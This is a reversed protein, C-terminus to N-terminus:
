QCRAPPFSLATNIALCEVHTWARVPLEPEFSRFERIAKLSPNKSVFHPLPNCPAQDAQPYEELQNTTLYFPPIELTLRLLGSTGIPRSQHNAHM